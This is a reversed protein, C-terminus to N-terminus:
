LEEWKGTSKDLFDIRTCGSDPMGFDDLPGFAEEANPDGVYWGSYYMNGDDDFLRFEHTDEGHALLLTEQEDTMGYPGFIPLTRLADQFGEYDTDIMWAYVPASM